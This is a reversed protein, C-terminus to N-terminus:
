DAGEETQRQKGIYQKRKRGRESWYAYWYPGHGPGSTCTTCSAKGCRVYEQRYTKGAVSASAPQNAAPHQWAEMRTILAQATAVIRRLDALSLTELSALITETRVM